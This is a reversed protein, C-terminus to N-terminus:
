KTIKDFFERNFDSGKICFSDNQMHLNKAFIEDSVVSYVGYQSIYKLKAENLDAGITVSVLVDADIEDVNRVFQKYRERLTRKAGIGIKKGNWVFLHDYEMDQFRSDQGHFIENEAVGNEILIQTIRDEYNGGSESKISQNMSENFLIMFIQNSELGLKELKTFNAYIRDQNEDNERFKEFWALTLLAGYVRTYYPRGISITDYALSLKNLKTGSNIFEQRSLYKANELLMPKAFIMQFSFELLIIFYERDGFSAFIDTDNESLKERFKEGLSNNLEDFNPNKAFFQLYFELQNGSLKAQIVKKLFNYFVFNIDAKEHSVFLRNEM